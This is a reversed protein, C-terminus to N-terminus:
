ALLEIVLYAIAVLAMFVAVTPDERVGISERELM